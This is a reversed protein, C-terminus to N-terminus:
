EVPKLNFPFEIPHDKGDPPRPFVMTGVVAALCDHLGNDKIILAKKDVKAGKVYGDPTITFAVKVLGAIPKAGVMAEEHCGQVRPQYSLVVQKISAPTFPLKSLDVGNIILSEGADRANNVSAGASADTILAKMTTEKKAAPKAAKGASPASALSMSLIAVTVTMM